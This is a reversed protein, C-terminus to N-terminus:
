FPVDDLDDDPSSKNSSCSPFPKPVRGSLMHQEWSFQDQILSELEKIKDERTRITQEWGKLQEVKQCFVEWLKNIGAQKSAQQKEATRLQYAIKANTLADRKLRAEVGDLDEQRIKWNTAAKATHEIAMLELEDIRHQKQILRLNEAKILAAKDELKKQRVRNNQSPTMRLMREGDPRNRLWGMRSGVTEFFWDQIRSAGSRYAKGKNSKIPMADSAVFGWNLNRTPAAFRDVLLHCHGFSEDQHWVAAVLRGGDAEVRAKVADIVLEIWRRRNATDRMEPEPYSAIGVMLVPKIISQKRHRTVGRLAYSETMQAARAKLDKVYEGLKEVGIGYVSIPQMPELVHHSNEPVRTIENIIHDLDWAKKPNSTKIAYQNEHWFMCREKTAIDNTVHTEM